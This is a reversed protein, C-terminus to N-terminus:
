PLWRMEMEAEPQCTVFSVEDRMVTLGDEKVFSCTIRGPSVATSPDALPFVPVGKPPPDIMAPDVNVTVTRAVSLWHFKIEFMEEFTAREPM